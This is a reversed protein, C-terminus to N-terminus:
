HTNRQSGMAFKRDSNYRQLRVNYNGEASSFYGIYIDGTPGAVVKPIADEGSLNCVVTNISPDSSWEAYLAAVFLACFLITLFARKKM